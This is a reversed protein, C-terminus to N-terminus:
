LEGEAGVLVVLRKGREYGPIEGLAHKKVYLAGIKAADFESALVESFKFTGKTEKELEFEVRM